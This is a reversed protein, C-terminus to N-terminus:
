KKGNKRVSKCAKRAMEDQKKEETKRTFLVEERVYEGLGKGEEHKRKKGREQDRNGGSSCGSEGRNRTSTLETLVRRDRGDGKVPMKFGHKNDGKKVTRGGKLKNQRGV